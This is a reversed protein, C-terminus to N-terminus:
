MNTSDDTAAGGLLQDLAAAIQSTFETTPAYVRCLRHSIPMRRYFEHATLPRVRDRASDYLFNQGAAPGATHPRFITRAIDIRLPVDRLDSPLNQRIKQEVLAPESFISSQEADSESFVLNRQCVM